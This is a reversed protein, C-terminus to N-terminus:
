CRLVVLTLHITMTFVHPKNVILTKRNIVYISPDHLVDWQAITVADSRLQFPLMRTQHLFDLLTKLTTFEVGKRLHANFSGNYPSYSFMNGADYSM